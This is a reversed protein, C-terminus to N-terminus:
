RLSDPERFGNLSERTGFSHGSPNSQLRGTVRTFVSALGSDHNTCFRPAPLDTGVFCVFGRCCRTQAWIVRSVEKCPGVAVVTWECPVVPGPRWEGRCQLRGFRCGASQFVSFSGGSNLCPVPNSRSQLGSGYPLECHLSANLPFHLKAQRLPPLGLLPYYSDGLASGGAAELRCDGRYCPQPTSLNRSDGSRYQSLQEGPPLPRTARDTREVMRLGM